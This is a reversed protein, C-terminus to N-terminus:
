TTANHLYIGARKNEYVDAIGDNRYGCKWGDGSQNQEPTIVKPAIHKQHQIVAPKHVILFNINKGDDAKKFGGQTQGESKGDLQQIKTYFRSQPVKKISAFSELVKKSKTTDLDEVLGLLTPTIRLHRQEYPVEDEDMKNNAARLAEVVQAGTTLNAAEGASIGEKQAYTAFRFADLEPVVHVKIFESALRGFAIGATEANDLTDVTFMRGRDFNCKVTENKLIVDGSIYGENRLYNALGSMELTPIILENVNAGERALEPAGDLDSSLSALKYVEDLLPIYSKFLEILNPM